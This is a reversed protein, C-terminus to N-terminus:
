KEFVRTSLELLSSSVLLNFKEVNGKNIEFRVRSNVVIFNIMSGQNAMGDQETIILTSKGQLKKVVAGIDKSRTRPVYLIHPGGVSSSSNYKKVVINQLNVKRGAQWEEFYKHIPSEGLVGIEFDGQQYSSPWEIYKIFKWCYLSKFKYNTENEEQDALPSSPLPEAPLVWYSSTLLSVTIPLFFGM